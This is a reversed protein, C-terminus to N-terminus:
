KGKCWERWIERYAGEVNRAFLRGDMLPSKEMRGRLEARMRALRPLDGALGAALRVFDERSNAILEEALGLNKAQSFGARSVATEGCLSIVPVGM